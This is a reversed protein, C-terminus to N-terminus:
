KISQESFISVTPVCSRMKQFFAPGIIGDGQYCSRVTQAMRDDIENLDFICVASKSSKTSGTQGFSVTVKQSVTDYYAAISHPFRLGSNAQCDLPVEIYSRYYRDQTCIRAIKTVINKNTGLKKPQNAIIYIYKGQSFGYIYQVHINKPVNERVSLASSGKDDSHVLGLNEISRSSITPATDSYQKGVIDNVLHIQNRSSKFLLTRRKRDKPMIFKERSYLINSMNGLTRVDCSGLGTKCLVVRDHVSDVLVAKAVSQTDLVVKEKPVLNESLKVLNRSAGLIIDGTNKDTGITGLMQGDPDHYTQTVRMSTVHM